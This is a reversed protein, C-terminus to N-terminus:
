RDPQSHAKRLKDPDVNYGFRMCMPLPGKIDAPLPPFPVAKLITDLAHQDYKKHGSTLTVIPKDITGDPMISFRVAVIGGKVWFETVSVPMHQRWLADLRDYNVFLYHRAAERDEPSQKTAYLGEAPGYCDDEEEPPLPPPADTTHALVTGNPLTLPKHGSAPAPASPLDPAQSSVVQPCLMLPLAFLLFIRAYFRVDM